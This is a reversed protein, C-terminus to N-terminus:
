QDVWLTKNFMDQIPMNDLDIVLNPDFGTGSENPYGHPNCVCLTDNIRYRHGFHTHGFTWLKIHDHDMMIHDLNSTFAGNMITQGAYKPHVSQQSPCHHTVVVTKRKDLSLQVRLWELDSRHKALTTAPRLKHYVDSNGLLQKETIQHYDNMLDTMALMDLPDGGNFDTWLSVGLFVTDDIVVRDQDCFHINPYHALEERLTPVTRDWRGSYHEHNGAVYIVHAWNDNVHAFFDRYSQARQGNEANNPLDSRPHRYIHHAVCIDGGLILVDSGTNALLPPRSHELHLDSIVQIKV